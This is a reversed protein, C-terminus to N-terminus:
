LEGRSSLCSKKTMVGRRPHHKRGHQYNSVAASDERLLNENGDSAEILYQLESEPGASLLANAEITKARLVLECLIYQHHGALIWERLTLDSTDSEAAAVVAPAQIVPQPAVFLDQQSDM